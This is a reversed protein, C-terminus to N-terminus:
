VCENAGRKRSESIDLSSATWVDNEVVAGRGLVTEVVTAMGGESVVWGEKVRGLVPSRSARGLVRSWLAAFSVMSMGLRVEDSCERMVWGMGEVSLTFGWCRVGLVRVWAYM